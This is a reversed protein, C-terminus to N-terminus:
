PSRSPRYVAAARYPLVAFDAALVDAVPYPFGLAADAVCVPYGTAHATNAWGVLVVSVALEGFIREDLCQRLPTGRVRM